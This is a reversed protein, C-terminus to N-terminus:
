EEPVIVQRVREEWVAMRAAFEEPHERMRM